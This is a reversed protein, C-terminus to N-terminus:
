GQGPLYSKFGRFMLRIVYATAAILNRVEVQVTSNAPFIIPRVFWCPNQATGFLNGIDVPENMYFKANGTNWFRVLQRPNAQWVTDAPSITVAVVGALAVFDADNAIQIGQTATAGGALPLFTTEYQFFSQRRGAHEDPLIAEAGNPLTMAIM